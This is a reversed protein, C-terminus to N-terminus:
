LARAQITRRNAMAVPITLLAACGIAMFTSVIAGNYGSYGISGALLGGVIAGAVGLALELWVGYGKGELSKGALWGAALGVYIWIAIQM